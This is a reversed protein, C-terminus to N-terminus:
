LFHCRLPAFGNFGVSSYVSTYAGTALIRVREGVKLDVPLQYNAQDYLIDVSDCTPGAIVMPETELGDTDRALVIQYRISEGETEALGSFRGIDLYVWPRPDAPNGKDAILVVEAEIVGADGAMYRGPEIIVKPIQDPGWLRQMEAWIHAGIEQVSCVSQRYATPLGGGLNVMAPRQGGAAAIRDMVDAITALALSWAGPDTQQSGVHFSLGYPELGLREAELMLAVALDPTCGFKRSLPWDAGKNDVFLRCFVKSGPAHAALKLLEARCDFAFLRVGKAFAEAIDTAKKITNGFSIQEPTAGLGLVLNIEGPSACDLYSGQDMVRSVVPPAPNAKVAYFIEAYPMAQSLARYNWAVVDLDVALCPTEPGQALFQDLKETLGPRVWIPKQPQDTVRNLRAASGEPSATPESLATDPGIREARVATDFM